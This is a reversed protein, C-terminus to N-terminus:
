HGVSAALVAAGTAAAMLVPMLVVFRSEGSRLLLGCPLGFLFGGLHGQWSVGPLLSIVAVQVLWIGLTRRGHQTAIPLSAGAWGLIMGSAGVTLHEFAFLLAFTSSGLTTVWSIAAFRWSGIARELTTGLTFVVSLNFLLHIANGHELATAVLRWWQGAQVAPGFLAGLPIPEGETGPAPAAWRNQMLMFVVCAAMLAYCFVARAGSARLPPSPHTSDELADTHDLIRSNKITM